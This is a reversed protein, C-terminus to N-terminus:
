RILVMKKMQCIGDTKLQYFYIGSSLGETTFRLRHEGAPIKDDLLIKVERGTVDYIGLRVYGGQSMNFGILTASNFPNPFNQYLQFRGPVSIRGPDVASSGGGIMNQDLWDIRDRIWNKLYAMEEAYTSPWVPNPWVYVGLIPWRKFNRQQAEELVVAMSDLYRDIYGSDFFNQRLEQWRSNVRSAFYPDGRLKKWWFPIQCGDSRGTREFDDIWWGNTYQANYYNANGYAITFDWLPGMTLRGDKDHRDKYMFASLRFGDVNKALEIQLFFDVFSEINLYKRYGNLPDNWQPGALVAEVTDIYAQIYIKQENKINAPRPYHYQYYITSGTVSLYKSLWYANEEGDWKDIKVIYGGTLSDGSVDDLDLKAIDVRKKDRKIKELFVYVGMYDGNLVVECFRSRSGYMGLDNSLKFALADRLLTKDNYVAYLIWDSESPMGLLTVKLDNGLSDRTEVAYQKKPFQQSSSGRLEIGIKGNYDNWPDSPHNRVGPGNDIVGMDATIKYPNVIPQGHTDIVVIPLNSSELTVTQATVLVPISILIVVVDIWFHTAPKMKM